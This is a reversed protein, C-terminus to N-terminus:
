ISLLQFYHGTAAKHVGGFGECWITLGLGWRGLTRAPHMTERVWRHVALGEGMSTHGQSECSPQASM